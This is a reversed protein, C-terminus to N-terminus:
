HFAMIGATMFLVSMATFVEVKRPFLAQKSKKEETTIFSKKSINLSTPPITEKRKVSHFNTKLFAM